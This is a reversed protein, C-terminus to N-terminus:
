KLHKAFKSGISSARIPWRAAVIRALRRPQFGSADTRCLTYGGGTGGRPAENHLAGRGFAM